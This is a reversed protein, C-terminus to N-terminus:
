LILAAVSFYIALPRILLCCEICDADSQDLTQDLFVLLGPRLIHSKGQSNLTSDSNSYRTSRHAHKGYSRSDCVRAPTLHIDPIDGILLHLGDELAELERRLAFSLSSAARTCSARGRKCFRVGSPSQGSDTRIRACRRTSQILLAM